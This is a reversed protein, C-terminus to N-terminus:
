GGDFSIKHSGADVDEIGGLGLADRDEGRIRGDGRHGAPRDAEPPRLEDMGVPLQGLMAVLDVDVAEVPAREDGVRPRVRTVLGAVRCVVDEAEAEDGRGLVRGQDLLAPRQGVEVRGGVVRDEEDAALCGHDSEDVLWAHM